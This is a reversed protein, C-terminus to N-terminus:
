MPQRKRRPAAAQIGGNQTSSRLNARLQGPRIGYRRVFARSLAAESQYGVEAAIQGLPDGSTALRQHALSLRVETLFALPAINATKKFSRVLSARSAAALAALEDLGWAREPNRVMALVAKATSQQALLKLLGRVADSEELHARLMMVFLARALDAAVLAAGARDGDLEDRIGAVIARFRDVSPNAGFRLVITDPLAALVLNDSAAEFHLRGCILETDPEIGVSRQVRVSNRLEASIQTGSSANRARMVHADGRPLLLIHGAELFLPDKGPRDLACHGKTVIHFYAWGRSEADHASAWGGGFQCFDQLEPRVRLLHALGSLADEAIKETVVPRWGVRQDARDNSQAARVDGTARQPCVSKNDILLRLCGHMHHIPILVALLNEGADCAQGFETRLGDFAIDREASGTLLGAMEVGLGTLQNRECNSDAQSTITTDSDV